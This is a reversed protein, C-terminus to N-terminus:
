FRMALNWGGAYLSQAASKTLRGAHAAHSGSLVEARVVYASAFEVRIPPAPTAHLPLSPLSVGGPHSAVM